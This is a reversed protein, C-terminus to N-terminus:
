VRVLSSGDVQRLVPKGDVLVLIAPTQSVIVRPPDNKVPRPAAATVRAETMALAALIRDLSIQAADRPLHRELVKAYEAARGPESPFTLKDIRFDALAVLRNVKDVEARASFWVVGFHELPSAASEVSFAARAHLRTGDWKEIQPQYVTYTQGGEVSERPWPANTQGPRAAPPASQAPGGTPPSAPRPAPSAPAAGPVGAAKSAPAGSAPMSPAQAWTAPLSLQGALFLLTAIATWHTTRTITLTM